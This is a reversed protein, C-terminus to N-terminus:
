VHVRAMADMSAYLSLVTPARLILSVFASVRSVLGMVLATMQVAQSTVTPAQTIQTANVSVLSASATCVSHVLLLLARRVSGVQYVTASEM